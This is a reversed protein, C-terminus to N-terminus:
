RIVVRQYTAMVDLGSQHKYDSWCGKSNVEILTNTMNDNLQEVTSQVCADTNVGVVKLKGRPLKNKRLFSAIENGGGNSFKILKFAKKYNKTLNFLEPLTSGCNNYEVFIINLNNRIAYRIEKKCVRLTERNYAATFTAQM